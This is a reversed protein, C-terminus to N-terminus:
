NYIVLSYEGQVLGPQSLYSGTLPFLGALYLKPKESLQTPLWKEWVEQHLNIWDCAVKHLSSSTLDQPVKAIAQDYESDNLNM